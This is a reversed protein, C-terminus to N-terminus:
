AILLEKSYTNRNLNEKKKIASNVTTIDGLMFQREKARTPAVYLLNSNMMFTHSKPALTIVQKASSGQSKHITICYGLEIQNLEGKSYVIICDGFDVQIENYNVDIIIGTNGNFISTEDDTPTKAKYNNIIQIVKDGKHFKTDGRMIFNTKHRKQMLAQIHKNIAKTGYDGKNQSTLVMIDQVDYGDDLLKKYIGLTQQPIKYDPLQCFIFDKKTGFIKTGTFTNELFKIGKRINTVVQMLGGEAYRFIKTLLVTPVIRSSLLDQAINGCGVSALQYSDFVLLLKTKNLDIANIVNKFLYIDVMSFEDIIVVDVDLKNFENYGWSSINKNKSPKYKLQRHITGCERNTYEHLVKSSAGTPTMLTYTKGTDDLMNILAKVSASKGSGAPATLLGVSNNCMMDLTSLQEDTMNMGEVERYLETNVSWINSKNFLMSKIFKSIDLETNYAKTTSITKTDFDVHIDDSSEKIVKVFLDICQPVLKGCNTRAEKLTMRTNGKTENEELIFNLCSKMRQISHKLDYDFKFKEPNDKSQQELNLLISDATKFGVRSLKCLCRYPDKKLEKKIISVNSYTDYLKKMVNIEILGGFVDVLEILCFNEIVKAKIKNFTPEKIGKTKTLDIDDLDNKVIKDVINPYVELLVNAQAETLIEMLFNKSSNYDTPKDRRISKVKYQIGFTKNIEPTAVIDYEIDPILSPMNGVIIYEKNKNGEIDKYVKKNVDVVYIKFDDSNYRNRLVTGKFKLEKQQM